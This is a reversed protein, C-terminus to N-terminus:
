EYRSAFNRKDYSCPNDLRVEMIFFRKRNTREVVKMVELRAAGWGGLSACFVKDVSM